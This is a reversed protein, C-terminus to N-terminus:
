MARKSLREPPSMWYTVDGAFLEYLGNLRHLLGISASQSDFSATQNQSLSNFFPREVSERHCKRYHIKESINKRFGDNLTLIV